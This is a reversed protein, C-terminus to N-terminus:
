LSVAHSITRAWKIYICPHMILRRRFVLPAALISFFHHECISNQSEAKQNQCQDSLRRLVFFTGRLQIAAVTNSSIRRVRFSRVFSLATTCPGTNNINRRIQLRFNLGQLNIYQMYTQLYTYVLRAKKKRISNKRQITLITFSTFM